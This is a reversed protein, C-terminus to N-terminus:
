GTPVDEERWAQGVLDHLAVDPEAELFAVAVGDPPGDLELIQGLVM